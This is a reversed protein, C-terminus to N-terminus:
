TIRTTVVVQVAVEGNRVLLHTENRFRMGQLEARQGWTTSIESLMRDVTDKITFVASEGVELFLLRSTITPRQFRKPTRQYHGKPL